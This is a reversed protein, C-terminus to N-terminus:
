AYKQGIVVVVLVEGAHNVTTVEEVEFLNGDRSEIVVPLREGYYDLQGQMEANHM